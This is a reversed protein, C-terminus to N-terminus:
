PLKPYCLWVSISITGLDDATVPVGARSRGIVMRGLRERMDELGTTLALVAMIESAV